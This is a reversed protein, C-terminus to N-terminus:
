IQRKKYSYKHFLYLWVYNIKKLLITVDARKVLIDIFNEYVNRVSLSFCIAVTFIIIIYTKYM